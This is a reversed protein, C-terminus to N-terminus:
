YLLIVITLNSGVFIIEITFVEKVIEALIAAQYGSGTGIELVRDTKKLQLSETMFAVVYPQSITQGEGIPLPSDIYAKSQLKEPVFAHRPVKDMAELVASDKIGRSIIQGQIMELRLSMYDKNDKSKCGAWAKLYILNFFLIFHICAYCLFFKVVKSYLSLM